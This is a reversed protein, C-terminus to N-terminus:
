SGDNTFSPNPWRSTSCRRCPVIFPFGASFSAEVVDTVGIALCGMISAVVFSILILWCNRGLSETDARFRIRVRTCRGRGSLRVTSLTFCDLLANFLVVLISATPSIISSIADRGNVEPSDRCSSISGDSLMAMSCTVRCERSFVM